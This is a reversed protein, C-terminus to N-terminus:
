INGQRPRLFEEEARGVQAAGETTLRLHAEDRDHCIMGTHRLDVCVRSWMEDTLPIRLRLEESAVPAGAKGGVADYVERVVKYCAHGIEIYTLEM